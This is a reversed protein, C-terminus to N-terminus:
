LGSILNEIKKADADMAGGSLVTVFLDAAEAALDGPHKRNEAFRLLVGLAFPVLTEGDDDEGDVGPIPDPEDPLSAAWPEAETSMRRAFRELSSRPLLASLVGRVQGGEEEGARLMLPAPEAFLDSAVLAAVTESPLMGVAVPRPESEEEEDAAGEAAEDGASEGGEGGDEEAEDGGLDGLYTAFAQEGPKAREHAVPVVRLPLAVNTALVVEPHEDGHEPEDPSWGGASPDSDPSWSM